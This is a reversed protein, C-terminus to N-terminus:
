ATRGADHADIHNAGRRHQSNAIALDEDLFSGTAGESLFYYPPIHLTLTVDNGRAEKYSIM